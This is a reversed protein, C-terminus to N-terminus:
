PPAEAGAARWARLRRMADRLDGVLAAYPRDLTQRRGVIVYDLGPQAHMPLVERAAARLRRKARNREVANGVKRSVTFGIRAAGGDEPARPRVQLV